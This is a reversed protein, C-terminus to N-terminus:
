NRNSENEREEAEAKIAAVKQEQALDAQISAELVEEVYALAQTAKMTESAGTRSNRVLIRNNPMIKIMVDFM